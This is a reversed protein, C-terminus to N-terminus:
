LKILEKALGDTIYIIRDKPIHQAKEPKKLDRHKLEVNDCPNFHPIRDYVAQQM